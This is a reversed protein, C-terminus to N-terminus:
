RPTPIGHKQLKRVITSQNVKLAAAARRTTKHRKMAQELITRETDAMIKNLPRGDLSDMTDRVSSGGWNEPLSLPTIIEGPTIVVLQEVLNELERVNGPWEYTMFLNIVKRDIQKSFKYQRNYKDLFHYTFPLISEVRDRLPPVVINVVNLRFFLDERFKKEIVMKQLDRNTAAVIRVDVKIPSSDGIRYIEREQLVRLLKSQLLLPMEGIEDLFISGGEAAEFLGAKGKNRAGTFAGATYGFLESDLLQDPFAACNIKVFPKHHRPGNDHIIDAFIEKGVGSEGQILVTSDVQSLRLATNRLDQIKKSRLVIKNQEGLTGRLQRLEAEVATRREEEDELKKQLRNLETVDRVNTIVLKINNDEDLFPNGTVMVTKGTKIKQVLSTPRKTKLVQLTVSENFYGTDVLENMTRGVVDEIKIGTIREYAKNVLITRAQGDTVYIGDYSSEIIAELEASILKTHMLEKTLSELESIDQLVAVAGIIKGAKRIISRNSMFTHGDIEIKQALEHQGTQLIRYLKSNSIISTLDQGVVKELSIGTIKEGALNFFVVQGNADIAIIPNHIANLLAKIEASIELFSHNM